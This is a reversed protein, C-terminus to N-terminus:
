RVPSFVHGKNTEDKINLIYDRVENVVQLYNKDIKYFFFILRNVKFGANTGHEVIVLYGATKNWLNLITQLRSRM